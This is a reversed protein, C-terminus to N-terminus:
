SSRPGHRSFRVSYGVCGRYKLWLKKVHKSYLFNASLLITLDDHEDVTILSSGNLMYERMFNHSGSHLVCCKNTSFPLNTEETWDKIADLDQQAFTRIKGPVFRPLDKEIMLLCLCSSTIFSRAFTM